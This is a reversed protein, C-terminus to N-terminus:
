SGEPATITWIDGICLPRAHRAVEHGDNALAVIDGKTCREDTIFSSAGFNAGSLVLTSEHAPLTAALRYTKGGAIVVFHLDTATENRAAIGRTIFHDTCGGILFV